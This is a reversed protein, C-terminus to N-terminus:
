QVRTIFDRSIHRKPKKYINIFEKFNPSNSSSRHYMLYNKEQTNLKEILYSISSEMIHFEKAKELVLSWDVLTFNNIKKLEIIKINEPVPFSWTSEHNEGGINKNIFVYDENDTLNLVNFFLDKEKNINRKLQLFNDWDNYNINCLKYKATMVGCEEIPPTGHISVVITNDHETIAALPSINYEYQHPVDDISCFIINSNLYDKVWLYNNIIPWYVKHGKDLFSNAIKQCFFIDGLGAPQKIIVIKM